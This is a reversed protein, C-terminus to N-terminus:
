LSVGADALLGLCDKVDDGKATWEPGGVQPLQHIMARVVLASDFRSLGVGEMGVVGGYCFNRYDQAAKAHTTTTTFTTFWTQSQVFNAVSIQSSLGFSLVQADSVASAIIAYAAAREPPTAVPITGRESDIRIRHTGDSLEHCIDRSDFASLRPCSLELRWHGVPVDYEKNLDREPACGKQAGFPESGARIFPACGFLEIASNQTWSDTLRGVEIDESIDHSLLSSIATDLAVAANNVDPKSLSTLLSSSPSAIKVATTIAGMALAAGQSKFESTVKATVHITLSTNPGIRFIPSEVNSATFQTSWNNGLKVGSAHSVSFLPITIPLAPERVTINAVTTVTDTRSSLLQAVWNRNEARYNRIAAATSTNGETVGQDGYSALEVRTYLDSYSQASPAAKWMSADVGIYRVIEYTAPTTASDSRPPGPLSPPPPTRREAELRAVREVLENTTSVHSVTPRTDTTCAACIPTLAMLACTTRPLSNM